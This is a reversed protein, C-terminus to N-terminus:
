SKQSTPSSLPNIRNSLPPFPKKIRDVISWIVAIAAVASTVGNVITFQQDPTITVGLAGLGMALLAVLQKWMIASQWWHIQDPCPQTDTM